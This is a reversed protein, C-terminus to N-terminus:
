WSTAITIGTGAVSVRVETTEGKPESGPALLAYVLTGTGLAGSAIFSWFSANLQHVRENELDNYLAACESFGPMGRDCPKQEGKTSESVGALATGLGVLAATAAIGGVLIAKNPGGERTTAQGISRPRPDATPNESLRLGLQHSSGATVDLSVETPSFGQLRAVFTRRGPEVFIEHSLPSKGVAVGDVFLDAGERNVTLLLTGIKQRVEKLMEQAKTREDDAVATAERLFYALHEAADRHKGVMMEARGLNAAIQGHEKLRWAALFSAQAQEWRGAKAAEVGANYLEVARTDSISTPSPAPQQLPTQSFAPAGLATAALLFGLM